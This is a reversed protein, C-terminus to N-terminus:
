LAFAAKALRKCQELNLRASHEESCSLGEERSTRMSARTSSTSRARASRRAVQWARYVSFPESASLKRFVMAVFHKVQWQIAPRGLFATPGRVLDLLGPQSRM